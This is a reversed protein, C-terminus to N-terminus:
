NYNKEGFLTTQKVHVTNYMNKAEFHCFSVKLKKKVHVLTGHNSHFQGFPETLEEKKKKETM